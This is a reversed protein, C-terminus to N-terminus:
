QIGGQSNLDTLMQTIAALRSAPQVDVPDLATPHGETRHLIFIGNQGKHFRPARYWKKDMSTPFYLDSTDPKGKLAKRVSLVAIQWHPEDRRLSQQRVERIATVEAEVVAESSQLRSKLYNDPIRSVAQIVSEQEKLDLHTIEKVAIGGGHLWSNTFFIAKQGPSLIGEKAKDLTVLKGKLDGLVPDIRIGLDVQISYLNDSAPLIAVTSENRRVVTGSFILGASSTLQDLDSM